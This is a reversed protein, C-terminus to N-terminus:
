RKQGGNKRTLSFFNYFGAAVGYLTFAITLYPKTKLWKDLLYGIGLGVAISTPFMLGLTSYSLWNDAKPRKM